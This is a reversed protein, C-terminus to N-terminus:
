YSEMDSKDKERTALNERLSNAYLRLTSASHVFNYLQCTKILFVVVLLELLVQIHLLSDTRAFVDSRNFKYSKLSFLQHICIYDCDFNRWSFVSGLSISTSVLANTLMNYFLILLYFFFRSLLNFSIHTTVSSHTTNRIKIINYIQLQM